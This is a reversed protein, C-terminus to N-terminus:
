RLGNLGVHRTKSLNFSYKELEFRDVTSCLPRQGEPLSRSKSRATVTVRNAPNVELGKEGIV